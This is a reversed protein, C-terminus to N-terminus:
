SRATPTSTPPACTCSPPPISCRASPATPAATTSRHRQAGLATQAAVATVDFTRVPANKRAPSTSAGRIAPISASGRHDPQGAADFLDPQTNTYTRLLGWIGAWYDDTSSGASWLRDVYEGNPNKIIQPVIFEFHESIGMMQSNRYGSNPESPEFLWKIGHVSFNHGEEHAGVLLRIQM